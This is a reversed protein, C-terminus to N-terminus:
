QRKIWPRGWGHNSVQVGNFTRMRPGKARQESMIRGSDEWAMGKSKAELWACKGKGRIGRKKMETQTVVPVDVPARKRPRM